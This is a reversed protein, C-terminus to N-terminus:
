AFELVGGQNPSINLWVSSPANQVNNKHKDIFSNLSDNAHKYSREIAEISTKMSAELKSVGFKYMFYFMVFGLVMLIAYISAESLEQFILNLDM